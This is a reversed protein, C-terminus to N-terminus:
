KWSITLSYKGVESPSWSDVVLIMETDKGPSFTLTEQLGGGLKDSSTGTCAANIAGASCSTAAEFAYLAPDFTAEPTLTVTYTRGKMLTVKYYAQPGSWPGLTTGCTVGALDNKLPGTAGLEVSPSGTLTLAKAKACTGNTPKVYEQLWLEFAGKAGQTAGDVALTYTGPKVPTFLLTSTVGPVAKLFTGSLGSSGCDAAMTLCSSGVAVVASFPAKLALQYAKQQLTVSYYAQPAVLSPGTGCTVHAGLDNLLTATSSKVNVKGGTLTLVTAQGCTMNGPPTFAEIALGFDGWAKPDLADVAVIYTGSSLPRFATAGAEGKSVLPLVTGSIGGCDAEINAAKCTGAANFVYLSAAFDPTLALRYWTAAQLKVSYYVQPGDFDVGLGCRIQKSNENKSGLTTGKLSVKGGVLTLSKPTYCAGHTPTSVETVTLKFAGALKDTASDVALRFTGTAPSTFTATTVKGTAAVGSFVGTAGGSTCDTNIINKSCDSFVYFAASFQPELEVRYTTGKKMAVKYYQQPGALPTPEGCRIANGFENAAKATSGSVTAKGGTFSLAKAGICRDTTSPAADPSGQDGADPWKFPPRLDDLRMDAYGSGWDKFGPTEDCACLLCPLATLILLRHM